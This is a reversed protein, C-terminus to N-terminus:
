TKKRVQWPGPILSSDYNNFCAGEASVMCAGVPHEPTCTKGFLPCERSALRGTIVDACRCGEPENDRIIDRSGADYRKYEERLFLGSGPIVGLGRWAADGKKFIMGVSRRAEKNGEDKVARPYLNMCGADKKAALKTLAYLSALLEGGEFGSIVFPIGLEESLGAYEGTGTIVAVHGPALFGDIGESVKRIAEPMTKLSTLLRINDIGNQEAESILAAYVPATTEFGVAAFIYIHSRDEKALKLMDMPSYVYRIDAGQAGAQTLSMESGPVRLLDGFSVIVNKRDESLEILRDIYGTVTVCVPCGPGTIIRIRDSLMSPIGNKRIGATHTGCIEMIRLERGDYSKLYEAADSLTM